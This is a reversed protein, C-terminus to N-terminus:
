KELEVTKFSAPMVIELLECDSSYDLVKHKINKPQLWSDGAKMTHVGQGEFQSTMSGKLVYIMQFQTDHLHPKGEFHESPVARIIHAVVQGKTAQKIGLDRYEFFKRLGDTKFRTTSEHSVWFDQANM